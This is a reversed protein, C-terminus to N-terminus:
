SCAPAHHLPLRARVLKRSAGLGKGFAKQPLLLPNAWQHTPHRTLVLARLPLSYAMGRLTVATQALSAQRNASQPRLWGAADFAWTSLAGGMVVGAIVVAGLIGVIPDAVTSGYAWGFLLATIALVSTRADALVHMYASRLNHDQAHNHVVDVHEHDNEDRLLWASALNVMLGVGAIATAEPYNITM